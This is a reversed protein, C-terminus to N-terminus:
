LISSFEDIFDDIQEKCFFLCTENDNLINMFHNYIYKLKENILTTNKGLLHKYNKRIYSVLNFIYNLQIKQIFCDKKISYNRRISNKFNEILSLLVIIQQEEFVQNTIKLAIDESISMLKINQLKDNENDSLLLNMCINKNLIIWDQLLLMIRTFINTVPYKDDLYNKYNHIINLINITRSLNLDDYIIGEFLVTDDYDFYTITIKTNKIDYEIEFYDYVERFLIKGECSCHKNNAYNKSFSYYLTNDFFLHDIAKCKSDYDCDFIFNNFGADEYYSDDIFDGEDDVYESEMYTNNIRIIPNKEECNNYGENKCKEYELLLPYTEYYQQELECFSNENHINTENSCEFVKKIPYAYVDVLCCSNFKINNLNQKQDEKMSNFEQNKYRFIDFYDRLLKSSM